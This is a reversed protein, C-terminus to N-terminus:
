IGSRSPFFTRLTLISWLSPAVWAFIFYRRGDGLCLFYESVAAGKMSFSWFSAVLQLRHLQDPCLQHSAEALWPAVDDAGPVPFRLSLNLVWLPWPGTYDLHKFAHGTRARGLAASKRWEVLVAALPLGFFDALRLMVADAASISLISFGSEHLYRKSFVVQM